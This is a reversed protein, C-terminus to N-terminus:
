TNFISLQRFLHALDAKTTRPRKKSYQGRSFTSPNIKRTDIDHSDSSDYDLYKSFYNKSQKVDASESKIGWKRKQDQADSSECLSEDDGENRLVAKFFEESNRSDNSSSLSVPSAGDDNESSVASSASDPLHAGYSGFDRPPPSKRPLLNRQSIRSNRYMNERIKSSPQDRTHDMRYIKSLTERIATREAAQKMANLNLKWVRRKDGLTCPNIRRETREENDIYKIVPGMSRLLQRTQPHLAPRGNCIADRILKNYVVRSMPTAQLNNEFFVLSKHRTDFLSEVIKNGQYEFFPCRSIKPNEIEGNSNAIKLGDDSSDDDGRGASLDALSDIDSDSVSFEADGDRSGHHSNGGGGGGDYDDSSEGSDSELDSRPILSSNEM